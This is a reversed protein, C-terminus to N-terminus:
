LINSSYDQYLDNYHENVIDVVNSMGMLNEFGQIIKNLSYDLNDEGVIKHVASKVGELLPNFVLDKNSFAQEGVIVSLKRTAILVNVVLLMTAENVVDNVTLEKDERISRAKLNRVLEDLTDKGTNSESMDNFKILYVYSNTHMM